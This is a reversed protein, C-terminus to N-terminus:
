KFASFPELGSTKWEQDAGRTRKELSLMQEAKSWQKFPVTKLVKARTNFKEMVGERIHLGLVLQACSKQHQGVPSSM